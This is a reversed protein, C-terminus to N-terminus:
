PTLSFYAGGLYAILLFKLSKGLFCALTFRWAQYGVAGAAVGIVDFAPNPIFAGIAVTLFGRRHMWRQTLGLWRHEPLLGRAGAGLVFGSLEGIAAAVGAVLAVTMPDLFTAARFIVVLYPVPLVFSATTILTILFVGVYGADGIAETDIPVALLAVTLLIAGGALLTSRLRGTTPIAIAM